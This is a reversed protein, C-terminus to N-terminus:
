PDNKRWSWAVRVLRSNAESEHLSRGLGTHGHKADAKPMLGDALREAALDHTCTVDNMALRALNMM